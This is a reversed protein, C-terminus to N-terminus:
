GDVVGEDFWEAVVENTLMLFHTSWGSSAKWFQRLYSYKRRIMSSNSFANCNQWLLIILNYINPSHIGTIIVEEEFALM